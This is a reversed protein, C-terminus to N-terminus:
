KVEELVLDEFVIDKVDFEPNTEFLFKARTMADIKNESVVKDITISRGAPYKVTPKENYTANFVLFGNPVAAHVEAISVHNEQIIEEADTVVEDNKDKEIKVQLGYFLAYAIRHCPIHLEDQRFTGDENKRMMIWLNPNWNIDFVDGPKRYISVAPNYKSLYIRAPPDSIDEHKHVLEFGFHEALFPKEELLAEIQDEAIDLVAHADVLRALLFAVFKNNAENESWENPDPADKFTEQEWSVQPKNDENVWVKIRNRYMERSPINNYPYGKNTGHGPNWNSESKM